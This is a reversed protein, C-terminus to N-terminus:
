NELLAYRKEATTHLLVGGLVAELAVLGIVAALILLLEMEHIVMFIAAAAPLALGLLGILMGFMVNINQKVAQTETKWNLTPRVADVTVSLSVVAYRFVATLAVAGLVVTVPLHLGAWIVALMPTLAVADLLMSSLLKARIMDRASVPLTRNMAHRAGERSVCTSAAPSIFGAFGLIGSIILMLGLAPVEQVMSQLATGMEAFEENLSGGMISLGMILPYVLAGAMCQTLYVSSRLIDRLEMRILAKLPSASRFADKNMRVKKRPTSQETHRVCLGLYRKGLLAIVLAVSGLSVAAFMALETLNGELAHVGWLVPPFVATLTQLLAERGLLLKMLWMIDADDPVRPIVTMELGVVAIVIGMSLSSTLMASNNLRSLVGALLTSLLTIIAVPLMPSLVAILVARAYFAWDAHIHMGYMVFAPLLLALDIVCEGAWIETLKASLVTHSKVPLYSMWVADRSFYLAALGYFFSMMVTSIMAMLLAMAPLLEAHNFLALGKYLAVEVVIVMGLLMGMCVIMAITQMLLNMNLKGNEHKFNSPRFASIRNLIILRLLTVYNKM